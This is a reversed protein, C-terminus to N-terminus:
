RTRLVISSLNRKNKQVSSSGSYIWFTDCVQPALSTRYAEYTLLLFCRVTGHERKKPRRVLVGAVDSDPRLMKNKHLFFDVHLGELCHTLYLVQGRSTSTCSWFSANNSNAKERKSCRRPLGGAGGRRPLETYKERFCADRESETGESRCFFNQYLVRGRGEIKKTNTKWM